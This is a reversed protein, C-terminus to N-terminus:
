VHAQDTPTPVGLEVLEDELEDIFGLQRQIEAEWYRIKGEDPQNDYKYVRLIGEANKARRQCTQIQALIEDRTM